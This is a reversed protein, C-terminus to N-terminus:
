RTEIRISSPRGTMQLPCVMEARTGSPVWASPWVPGVACAGTVRFKQYGSTVCRISYGVPWTSYIGGSCTAAMPQVAAPPPEALAAAPACLGLALIIAALKMITM